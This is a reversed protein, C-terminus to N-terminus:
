TNNCLRLFSEITKISYEADEYLSMHSVSERIHVDSISPLHCQKLSVDYSITQDEKGILFLIPISITSLTASLDKRNRMATLCAILTDSSIQTQAHAILEHLVDQKSKKFTDTFLNHFLERIFHRTGHKQIFQISKDRNQKKMEDDDFAHSNIFGLGQLINPYKHALHLGVYAGLSHGLLTYSLISESEAIEKVMDAMYYIDFQEKPLDSGGHGPLNIAVVQYTNKLNAIVDNWMSYNECFGHLLVLAAGSGDITYFINCNRFSYKKLM